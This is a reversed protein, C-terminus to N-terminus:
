PFVLTSCLKGTIKRRSHYILSLIKKIHMFELQQKITNHAHMQMPENSPMHMRIVNIIQHTAWTDVIYWHFSIFHSNKHYHRRCPSCFMIRIPLLFALSQSLSLLIKFHSKKDLGHKM